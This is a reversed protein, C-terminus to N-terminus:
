FFFFIIPKNKQQQILFFFGSGAEGKVNVFSFQNRQWAIDGAVEFEVNDYEISPLAERTAQINQNIADIGLCNPMGSPM